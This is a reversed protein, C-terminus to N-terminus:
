EFLPQLVTWQEPAQRIAAVLCAGIRITTARDADEPDSAAVPAIPEGIVVRSPGASWVTYMPLLWAGTLRALRAPGLPLRALGAGFPVLAGTGTIDRDGALVVVGGRRVAAILRRAGAPGAPVITVGPGSRWSAMLTYLAPPQLPEMVVTSAIGHLAAFHPVLSFNGLHPAVVVVGRGTALARDLPRRDVFIFRQDLQAPTLHHARLLELYGRVAYGIVAPAMRRRREAPLEPLLSDLNALIARRAAPALRAALHGGLWALCPDVVEPLWPSLDAASRWAWVVAQERWALGPM